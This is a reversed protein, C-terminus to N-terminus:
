KSTMPAITKSNAGGVPGQVSTGMNRGEAAKQQAIYDAVAQRRIEAVPDLDAATLQEAGKSLFMNGRAIEADLEKIHQADDTLFRGGVFEAIGGKEFVHKCSKHTNFYVTYKREPQKELEQQVSKPVEPLKNGARIQQLLEPRIVPAPTPPTPEKTESM